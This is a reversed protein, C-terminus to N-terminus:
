ENIKDLPVTKEFIHPKKDHSRNIEEKILGYYIKGNSKFRAIDKCDNHSKINTIQKYIHINSYHQLFHAFKLL